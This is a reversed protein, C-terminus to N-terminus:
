RNFYAETAEELRDLYQLIELKEEEEEGGSVGAEEMKDPLFPEVVTRLM